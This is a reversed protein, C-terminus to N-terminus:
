TSTVWSSWPTHDLTIGPIFFFPVSSFFILLHPRRFLSPKFLDVRSYVGFIEVPGRGFGM